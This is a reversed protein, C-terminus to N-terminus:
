IRQKRAGADFYAVSGVTLSTPDRGLLTITPPVASAPMVVMLAIVMFLLISLVATKRNPLHERKMRCSRAIRKKMKIGAVFAAFFGRPNLVFVQVVPCFIVSGHSHPFNRKVM